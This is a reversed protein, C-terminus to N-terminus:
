PSLFPSWAPERVDGRISPMNSRVLGDVSVWALAGTGQQRTSYVLMSGNPALSPSEDFDARTLIRMDRTQLDMAAINFNGNNVHVFIVYRGDSSVQSRANFNGTFTLRQIQGGNSAVMYLQPTGGRDSTFIINRGDATWAPETDIASHNTLARVRNNSLNMVYINASGEHSSVFALERGDPSFAPGTNIGPFNVLERVQGNTLNLERILSLGQSDFNVFALRRGDASWSPSLIPQESRYVVRARAGDWDAVEIRYEENASAGEKVVYALQTSFMGRTGTIQQYIVDSFAHAIDRLQDASDVQRSVPSMAAQGTFVDYLEMTARYGGNNLREMRGIVIFEQQLLRWDRFLISQQSSPMGPFRNTSLPHFRGSLSLNNSIVGALDTSASTNGLFPVVAIRVPSDVGQTIRITVTASAVSALVLMLFLICGTKKFMTSLM